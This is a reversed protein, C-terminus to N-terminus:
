VFSIHRRKKVSRVTGHSLVSTDNYSKPTSALNANIIDSYDSSPLSFRLSSYQKPPIKQRPRFGGEDDSCYGPSYINNNMPIPCSTNLVHNDHSHSRPPLSTNYHPLSTNFYTAPTNSSVNRLHGTPLETAMETTDTSASNTGDATSNSTTEVLDETGPGDSDKLFPQSSLPCCHDTISMSSNKQNDNRQPSTKRPRVEMMNNENIHMYGHEQNYVNKPSSYRTLSNVWEQVKPAKEPDVNEQRKGNSVVKIEGGEEEIYGNGVYIRYIPNNPSRKGEQRHKFFCMCIFIVIVALSCAGISIGVAAMVKWDVTKKPLSVHTGNKFYENDRYINSSNGLSDIYDSYLNRATSTLIIEPIFHTVINSIKGINRATDVARIGIYWRTNTKPLEMHCYEITGYTAPSQLPNHLDDMICSVSLTSSSNFGEFDLTDRNQALRLEYIKASGQDLDGGPASWMLKVTNKNLHSVTLDTIRSPPISDFAQVSEVTMSVPSSTVAFQGISVPLMMGEKGPTLISAAGHNDIAEATLAYLGAGPLWTVYRSYVGDHERVDPDANGNDLLTINREVTTTSGLYSVTLVVQAGIVPQGGKSVEAWVVLAPSKPSLSQGKVINTYVKVEVGLQERKAGYVDIMVNFPFAISSSLFKLTYSFEGGKKDIVTWYRQNTDKNLDIEKGIENLIKVVKAHYQSVVVILLDQQSSALKFKGTVSSYPGITIVEHALVSKVKGNVRFLVPNGPYYITEKTMTTLTQALQHEPHSGSNDHSLVNNTDSVGTAVWSHGYSALFDFQPKTSPCIALTHITLGSQTAVAADIATVEPHCAALLLVGADSIFGRGELMKRTEKIVCQLCFRGGYVGSDAEIQSPLLSLEDELESESSPAAHLSGLSIPFSDDNYSALIGVKVDAGLGWLWRQVGGRIDDMNVNKVSQDSLDIALIVTKQVPIMFSIKPAPPLSRLDELFGQAPKDALSDALIGSAESTSPIEEETVFSSSAFKTIHAGVLSPRMAFSTDQQIIINERKTRHHINEYYHTIDSDSENVKSQSPINSYESIDYIPQNENMRLSLRLNEEEDTYIEEEFKDEKEKYQIIDPNTFDNNSYIDNQTTQLTFPKKTFDIHEEMIEWASRGYCLLNQPTLSESKFTHVDSFEVSNGMDVRHLLNSKNHNITTYDDSYVTDVLQDDSDYTVPFRNNGEYGREEFVGWRYRAWGAVLSRGIIKIGLELNNQLNQHFKSADISLNDLDTFDMIDADLFQGGFPQTDLSHADLTIYGGPRGCGEPQHVGIGVSEEPGWQSDVSSKDQINIDANSWRQWTAQQTDVQCHLALEHPLIVDVGGVYLKGRSAVWLDDSWSTVVGKLNNIFATCNNPQYGPQVAIVIGQYGGDDDVRARGSGGGGAVDRCLVGLTGVVLVTRTTAWM